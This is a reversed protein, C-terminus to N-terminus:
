RAPNQKIPQWNSPSKFPYIDEEIDPKKVFARVAWAIACSLLIDFHRTTIRPDEEKDMLDNLTYGRVEAILDPDNLEILGDEIAKSLDALMSSKTASNTEWGYEVANVFKIKESSRQTKHIKATPYITKLIDLTSGYNKEVAVYNEGFRKAERVIEHAFVDPKIENNKYTACVQVPICDLDLFVSTSSDLGVGGGVDHGSVYRNMPNYKKFIKLGTIEELVPKPIQRDVAVRDFYVDKSTSPQCNHVIFSPTCYSNDDEVEINYVVGKYLSPEIKEVRHTQM